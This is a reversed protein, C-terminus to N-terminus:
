REPRAPEDPMKGRTKSAAPHATSGAKDDRVTTVISEAVLRYGATFPKRGDVRSIMRVLPKAQLTGTVKAATTRHDLVIGESSQVFVLQNEPPASAHSCASITPVLFFETTRGKIQKLPIVYGALLVQQNTLKDAVSTAVARARQRRMRAVTRRQALLWDIDIGQKELHAALKAAELADSSDDKLEDEAILNRVRVVYGLDQLQDDSLSAFADNFAGSRPALMKWTVSTPEVAEARVFGAVLLGLGCRVFLSWM